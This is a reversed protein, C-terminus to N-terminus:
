PSVLITAEVIEHLFEVWEDLTWGAEVVLARYAAPTTLAWTADTARDVSWGERLLGAEDVDKWRRRRARRRAAMRDEFATAIAEDTHRAADFVVTVHRRRWAFGEAM